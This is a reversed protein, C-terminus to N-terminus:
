KLLMAGMFELTASGNGGGRATGNVASTTKAFTWVSHAVADAM